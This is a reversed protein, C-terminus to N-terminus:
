YDVFFMRTMKVHSWWLDTYNSQLKTKIKGGGILTLDENRKKKENRVTTNQTHQYGKEPAV